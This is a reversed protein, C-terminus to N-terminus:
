RWPGRHGHRWLKRRMEVAAEIEDLVEQQRETPPFDQCDVSSLFENQWLNLMDGAPDVQETSYIVVSPCARIKAALVSGSSVAMIM